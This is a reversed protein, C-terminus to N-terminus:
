NVLMAGIDHLEGMRTYLPAKGNSLSQDVQTTVVYLENLLDALVKLNTGFNAGAMEALIREQQTPNRLGAVALGKANGLIVQRSQQVFRAFSLIKAYLDDLHFGQYRNLDNKETLSEINDWDRHELNLKYFAPKLFRNALSARYHEGIRDVLKFIEPSKTQMSGTHM